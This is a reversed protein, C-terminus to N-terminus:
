NNEAYEVFSPEYFDTVNFELEHPRAYDVYVVYTAGFGGLDSIFILETDRNKTTVTISDDHESITFDTTTKAHSNFSFKILQLLIEKKHANM